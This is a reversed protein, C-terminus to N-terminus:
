KSNVSYYNLEEFYKLQEELPLTLFHSIEKKASALWRPKTEKSLREEWMGWVTSICETLSPYKCDRRCLPSCHGGQGYEVWESVGWLGNRCIVDFELKGKDKVITWRYGYTAVGWNNFTVGMPRFSEAITVLLSLDLTTKM